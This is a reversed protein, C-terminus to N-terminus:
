GNFFESCQGLAQEHSVIEKITSLTAGHNAMLVHNIKVKISKIIHFNYNKMLDYVAIVTGHISNEIPLIGYSCNGNEM